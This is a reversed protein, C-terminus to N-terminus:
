KEQNAAKQEGTMNKKECGPEWSLLAWHGTTDVDKESCMLGKM